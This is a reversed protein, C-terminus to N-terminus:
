NSFSSNVNQYRTEYSINNFSFTPFNASLDFVMVKNHLHDHKSVNTEGERERERERERQRDRERERERGIYIYVSSEDYIYIYIYIYICVYEFDNFFNLGWGFLPAM